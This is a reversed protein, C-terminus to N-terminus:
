PTGARHIIPMRVESGGSMASGLSVEDLRIAPSDSVSFTLSTTQGAAAGVDLWVHTWDDSTVIQRHSISTGTLEVNLTSAGAVPDELRVLFSLTVDRGDSPVTLVQRLSSLGGSGGLRVARDGTHGGAVVSPGMPGDPLWGGWGVHEFGGNVVADDEPPLVFDLSSVSTFISALQMPPLLGFGRRAVSLDYDGETVLYTTYQGFLVETAVAGTVAVQPWIVPEHRVTVIDGTLTHKALVTSVGGSETQNGTQDWARVRFSYPEGYQPPEAAFLAHTASTATLWRTWTSSAGIRYEVDFTVPSCADAGTWYVKFPPKQAQPLAFVRAVYPPLTDVVSAYQPTGYNGVNGARDRARVRFGLTGGHSGGAYVASRAQTEALWDTWVDGGDLVQVDFSKIGTGPDPDSGNWSLRVDKCESQSPLDDMWAVPPTSDMLQRVSTISTGTGQAIAPNTIRFDFDAFGAGVGAYDADAFMPNAQTGLNSRDRLEWWYNNSFDTSNEVQLQMGGVFISNRIHHQSGRIRTNWADNGVDRVSTVRDLTYNTPLVGPDSASQLGCQNDSGHHGVILSDSVTVDHITAQACEHAADGLMLAQQFGPGVISELVTLGHQDGGGFVQIGDSHVCLGNWTEGPHSPHPRSNYLWARRLTVGRIGGASQFADQGNDHVLVRDFFANQGSLEVGMGNPYWLGGSQSASGNDFVKLNRIVIDTPVPADDVCDEKDLRVGAANHGYVVIGQWKSGDLVIHSADERIYVGVRRVGENQYQYNSQGCYPLLLSRGGFIRVTGNRGPEDSLRITIPLLEAGRAAITLTSQYVMGCDPDPPANSTGTIEFPFSCETAGGDLLITDGPRIVSWNIQNLENWATAWSLGDSNSGTRSVYYNAGAPSAAVTTVSKRVPAVNGTTLTTPLQIPGQAAQTAQSGGFVVAILLAGMWIPLRGKKIM